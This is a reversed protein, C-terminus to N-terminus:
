QWASIGFNAPNINSSLTSDYQKLKQGKIISNKVFGKLHISRAVKHNGSINILNKPKIVNKLKENQKYLKKINGEIQINNFRTSLNCLKKRFTKKRLALYSRVIKM